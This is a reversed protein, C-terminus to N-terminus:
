NIYSLLVNFKMVNKVTYRNHVSDIELTTARTIDVYRLSLTAVLSRWESYGVVVQQFVFHAANRAGFLILRVCRARIRVCARMRARVRSTRKWGVGSFQVM